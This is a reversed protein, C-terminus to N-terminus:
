PLSGILSKLIATATAPDRLSFVAFCLAFAVVAGITMFPILLKRANNVSTQWKEVGEIRTTHADIVNDVGKRWEIITALTRATELDDKNAM